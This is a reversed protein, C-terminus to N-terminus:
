RQRVNTDNQFAGPIRPGNPRHVSRNEDLSGQESNNITSLSYKFIRGVHADRSYQFGLGSQIIWIDFRVPISNYSFGQRHPIYRASSLHVLCYVLLRNAKHLVWVLYTVWSICFYDFISIKEFILSNPWFLRFGDFHDNEDFFGLLTFILRFQVRFQCSILSKRFHVIKIVMFPKQDFIPWNKIFNTWKQIFDTLKDWSLNKRHNKGFSHKWVKRKWGSWGWEPLIKTM